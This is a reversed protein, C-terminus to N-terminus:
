MVDIYRQQINYLQCHHDFSLASVDVLEPSVTDIYPTINDPDWPIATSAGLKPTSIRYM